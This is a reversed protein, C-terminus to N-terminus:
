LSFFFTTLQTWRFACLSFNALLYGKFSVKITANKPCSDLNNLSTSGNEPEITAAGLLHTQWQYSGRVKVASQPSKLNAVVVLSYKVGKLHTSLFLNKFVCFYRRQCDLPTLCFWIRTWSKLNLFFIRFIATQIM